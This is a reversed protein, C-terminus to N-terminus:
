EEINEAAMEGNQQCAQRLAALQADLSYEGSQGETSVRAYVAVSEATKTNM